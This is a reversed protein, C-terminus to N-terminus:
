TSFSDWKCAVDFFINNGAQVSEEGMMVTLMADYDADNWQPLKEGLVGYGSKSLHKEYISQTVLRLKRNPCDASVLAKNEIRNGESFNAYLVIYGNSIVKRAAVFEPKGRGWTFPNEITKSSRVIKAEIGRKTAENFFKAADEKARSVELWGPFLLAVGIALATAVTKINSKNVFYFGFKQCNFM